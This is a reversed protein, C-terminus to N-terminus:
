KLALELLVPRHDSVLPEEIVDHEIVTFMDSPRYMIYDIEVQPDDSPFTLHDDGKDPITWYRSLLDIVKSDPQSNFDGALIVPVDVDKFIDILTEAQAYREEASGYLHIGVFVIEQGSDGVEIRAALATRPEPGPPLTYNTQSEIPWESLLAMGYKGGRYEMFPGFAYYPMGTLQSLRKPQDTGDVRETEKDIEQLLAVDPALQQIVYASRSLDIRGDMGLGHKINYILIRVTNNPPADTNAAESSCGSGIVLLFLTLLACAAGRIPKATHTM